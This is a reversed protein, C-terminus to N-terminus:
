KVVEQDLRFFQIGVANVSDSTGGAAFENLFTQYMDHLWARARETKSSDFSFTSSLFKRNEISQEEIAKKGLDLIQKHFNRLTKSPAKGVASLHEQERIFGNETKKILKLQQLVALAETAQSLTIKLRKSIFQADTKPGGLTVLELAAPFYWSSLFYSSEEQLTTAARNASLKEIKSKARTKAVKSRAHKSEVLAIFYDAERKSFGLKLSIERATDPSMGHVGRIVGSLTSQRMGLDRAFARMSYQKRRAQREEFVLLIIMKYDSISFFGEPM